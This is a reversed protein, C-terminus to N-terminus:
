PNITLTRRKCFGTGEQVKVNKRVQESKPGVERGM